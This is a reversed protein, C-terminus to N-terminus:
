FLIKFIKKLRKFLFRGEKISNIDKEKERQTCQACISIYIYVCRYRHIDLSM